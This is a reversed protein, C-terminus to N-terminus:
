RDNEMNVQAKNNMELGNDYCIDPYKSIGGVENRWRTM